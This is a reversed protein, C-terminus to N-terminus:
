ARALRLSPGIASIVACLRDDDERDPVRRPRDPYEHSEELPVAHLPDDIHSRNRPGPVIRLEIAILQGRRQMAGSDVVRVHRPKAPQAVRSRIGDVRTPTVGSETAVGVVHLSRLEDLVQATAQITRSSLADNQHTRLCHRPATVPRQNRISKQNTSDGHAFDGAANSRFRVDERRPRPHLAGPQRIRGCARVRV